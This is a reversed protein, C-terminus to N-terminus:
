KKSGREPKEAMESIVQKIGPKSVACEQNTEHCYAMSLNCGCTCPTTNLRIIAAMKKGDPLTSLSPESVSTLNTPVFERGPKLCESSPPKLPAPQFDPQRPNLFWVLLALLAMTVAVIAVSGKPKGPNAGGADPESM